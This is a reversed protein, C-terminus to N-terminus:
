SCQSNWSGPQRSSRWLRGGSHGPLYWRFVFAIDALGWRLFVTGFAGDTQAVEMAGITGGVSSALLALSLLLFLDKLCDFALFRTATQKLLWLLVSVEAVNAFGYVIANRLPYGIWLEAAAYAPVALLLTMRGPGARLLFVASFLLANAPWFASINNPPLSFFGGFRTSLLVVLLTIPIALSYHASRIGSMSAPQNMNPGGFASPPSLWGKTIFCAFLPM